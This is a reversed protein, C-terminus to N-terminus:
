REPSEAQMLFRCIEERITTGPHLIATLHDGEATLLPLGNNAAWRAIPPYCADERGAWFLTPLDQRQLGAEVQQPKALASFFAGIEAENGATVQKALEPATARAFEMFDAFSLPGNPGQPLGNVADWGGIVLSALRQPHYNLLATALWGGASYGVIHAKKYGLQNIVDIVAAAMEGQGYATVALAERTRGHGPLDPYAVRFYPSLAAVLGNERWSDGNMLLGHLLIVLPGEGTTQCFLSM